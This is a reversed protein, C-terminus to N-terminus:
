TLQFLFTRWLELHGPAIPRTERSIIIIIIILLAAYLSPAARHLRPGGASPTLRGLPTPILSEPDHQPAAVAALPKRQLGESHPGDQGGGLAHGFM